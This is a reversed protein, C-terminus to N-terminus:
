FSFYHMCKAAFGRGGIYTAAFKSDYTQVRSKNRTLDVRLIKGNWGYLSIM